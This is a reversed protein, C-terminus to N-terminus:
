EKLLPTARDHKRAGRRWSCSVSVFTSLRQAVNRSVVLLIVSSTTPKVFALCIFLKGSSTRFIHASLLFARHVLVVVHLFILLFTLYSTFLHSFMGRSLATSSISIAWALCSLWLSKLFNFFSAPLSAFCLYRGFVFITNQFCGGIFHHVTPLFIIAFM